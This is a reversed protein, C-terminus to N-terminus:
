NAGGSGFGGPTVDVIVDKARDADPEPEPERTAESPTSRWLYVVAAVLIIVLAIIGVVEM